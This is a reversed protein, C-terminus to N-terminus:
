PSWQRGVFDKAWPDARGTALLERLISLCGMSAALHLVTARDDNRSNPDSKGIGLLDKVAEQKRHKVAYWLPTRGQNDKPEPSVKAQTLLIKVVGERGHSAAFHLLIRGCAQEWSQCFENKRDCAANKISSNM